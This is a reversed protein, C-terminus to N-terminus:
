VIRSIRCARSQVFSLIRLKPPFGSLMVAAPNEEPPRSTIARSIEGAALPRNWLAMEKLPPM